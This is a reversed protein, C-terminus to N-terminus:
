AKEKKRKLKSIVPGAVSLLILAMLVLCIPRGMYYGLLGGLIIAANPSGPISLTMLPIM